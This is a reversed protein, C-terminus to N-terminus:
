QKYENTSQKLWRWKKFMFNKKKKIQGWATFVSIPVAPTRAVHRLVWILAGGLVHDGVAAVAAANEKVTLVMTTVPGRSLLTSKRARHQKRNEFHLPKIDVIDQNTCKALNQSFTSTIKFNYSAQPKRPFQSTCEFRSIGRANNYLLGISVRLRLVFGYRKDNSQQCLKYKVWYLM